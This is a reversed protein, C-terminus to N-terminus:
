CLPFSISNLSNCSYFAYSGISTCLPFTISQLSRCYAFASSEIVSCSPMYVSVLNSCDMFCRGPISACNPFSVSTLSVHDAFAGYPLSTISNDDYKIYKRLIFDDQIEEDPVNVNVTSYGFYGDNAALYQGNTNISKSGFPYSISLNNAGINISIDVPEISAYVNM